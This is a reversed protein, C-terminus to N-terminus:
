PASQTVIVEIPGRPDVSMFSVFRVNRVSDLDGLDVIQEDSEEPNVKVRVLESKPHTVSTDRTWGDPMVLKPSWRIYPATIPTRTVGMSAAVIAQDHLRQDSRKNSDKCTSIGGLIVLLIVLGLFGMKVGSKAYGMMEKSNWDSRYPIRDPDKSTAM